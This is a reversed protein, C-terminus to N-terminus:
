ANYELMSQLLLVCQFEPALGGSFQFLNTYYQILLEDTINISNVMVLVCIVVKGFLIQLCKMKHFSIFNVYM